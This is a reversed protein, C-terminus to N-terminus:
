AHTCHAPVAPKEPHVPLNEPVAAPRLLARDPRHNSFDDPETDSEAPNACGTAPHQRDPWLPPLSAEPRAPAAPRPLLLPLPATAPSSFPIQPYPAANRVASLFFYKRPRRVAKRQLFAPAAPHTSDPAESLLLVCGPQAPAAFFAAPM